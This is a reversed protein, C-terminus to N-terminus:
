VWCMNVCRTGWPVGPIRIGKMTQISVMLFIMRGPVRATRNAAFIIAPCRRNVNSPFVPGEIFKIIILM